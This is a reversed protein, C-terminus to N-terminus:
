NSIMYWQKFYTCKGKENLEIEYIMDVIRGSDNMIYNAIIANNKEGIIKYELSQLNQSEIDKWVLKIDDVKQFPTEYYDVDEDFLSIIKSIDKQIWYQKLKECWNNIM